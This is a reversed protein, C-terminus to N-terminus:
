LEKDYTDLNDDLRKQLELLQNECEIIEKANVVSFGKPIIRKESIEKMIKSSSHMMQLINSPIENYNNNYRYEIDKIIKEMKDVLAEQIKKYIVSINKLSDKLSKLKTLDASIHESIMRQKEQLEKIKNELKRVRIYVFIKKGAYLILLFFNLWKDEQRIPNNFFIDDDDQSISKKLSLNEQRITNYEEKLNFNRYDISEEPYDSVESDIDMERLKESEKKLIYKLVPKIRNIDDINVQIEALEKEHEIEYQNFDEKIKSYLKNYRDICSNYRKEVNDM